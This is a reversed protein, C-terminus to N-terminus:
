LAEKVGERSIGAGFIKVRQAATPPALDPGAVMTDPLLFPDAELQSFIRERLADAEAGPQLFIQTFWSNTTRVKEYYLDHAAAYTHGAANWDEDALLADRLVRVDRLTLSLGQGWTPDSTAATDGILAISNRYPHKVWSDAGEFTALPGAQRAGELLEGAVGSGLCEAIFPAFAADGQYRVGDQVPSALYVRGSSSTQPFYLVMRCLFPNLMAISSEAPAPINEVLVGGFLNSPLDDHVEFGGWKRVMSARGSAGIVLRASVTVQGSNGELVVRPKHGPEVLCVRVGRRVEAGAAAASALLVEQLQPHYMCLGRVKQPTDEAFDRRTTLDPGAFEAWYTPHHAGAQILAAYIGLERAEAVGWPFLFEGRVRDKFQSEREVVLVRYGREAMVRGLTAGGVGGGVTVIDYNSM